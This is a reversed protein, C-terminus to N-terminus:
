GIGAKEIWIQRFHQYNETNNQSNVICHLNITEELLSIFAAKLKHYDNEKQSFKKQLERLAETDIDM